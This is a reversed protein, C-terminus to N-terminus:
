RLDRLVKLTAFRRILAWDEETFFRFIRMFAVYAAFYVAAYAIVLGPREMGAYQLPLIVIGVLAASGLPQALERFPIFDLWSVQLVRKSCWLMYGMGILEGFVYGLAPGSFGLARELAIGLVVSAAFSFTTATLIPKTEGVAILITKYSVIRLPLLCLYIRFIEVGGTYQSTFLLTIIPEAFIFCFVFLPFFLQAVKRAAQRWLALVSAV